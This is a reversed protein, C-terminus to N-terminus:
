LDSLPLENNIRLEIMELRTKMESRRREAQLCDAGFTGVEPLGSTALWVGVADALGVGGLGDPGM